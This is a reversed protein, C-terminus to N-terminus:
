AFDGREIWILEDGDDSGLLDVPAARLIANPMAMWRKVKETNDFVAEAREMLRVLRGDQENSESSEGSHVM